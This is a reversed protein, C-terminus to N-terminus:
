HLLISFYLVLKLFFHFDYSTELAAEQLRKTLIKHGVFIIYSQSEPSQWVTHQCQQLTKAFVATAM